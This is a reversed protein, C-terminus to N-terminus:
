EAQAATDAPLLAMAIMSQLLPMAATANLRCLTKRLQCPLSIDAKRRGERLLCDTTM